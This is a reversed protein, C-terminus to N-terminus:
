SSFAFGSNKKSPQHAAESFVKFERFVDITTEDEFIELAFLISAQKQEQIFIWLSVYFFLQMILNAKKM